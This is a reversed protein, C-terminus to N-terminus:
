WENPDLKLPPALTGAQHLSLILEKTQQSEFMPWLSNVVIEALEECTQYTVGSKGLWVEVRKAGIEHILARRAHEVLLELHEDANQQM